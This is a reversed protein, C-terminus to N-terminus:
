PTPEKGKMFARGKASLRYDPYLQLEKSRYSEILGHDFLLIHITRVNIARENTKFFYYAGLGGILYLTEGAALRELVRMQAKSLKM